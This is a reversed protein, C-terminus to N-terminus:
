FPISLIQYLNQNPNPVPQLNQIPKVKALKTKLKLDGRKLDRKEKKQDAERDKKKIMKEGLEKLFARFEAVSVGEIVFYPLQWDELGLRYYCHPIDGKWM